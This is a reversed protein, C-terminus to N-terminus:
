APRQAPHRHDRVRHASHRILTGNMYVQPTMGLFHKFQRILHSQDVFGVDLAAESPSVGDVLRQVAHGVRVYNIFQHPTMGVQERFVAVFRCRSLGAALALQALSLPEPFRTEIMEVVRSMDARLPSRVVYRKDATSVSNM